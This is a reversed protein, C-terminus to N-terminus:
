ESMTNINRYVIGGNLITWQPVLLDTGYFSENQKNRFYIENDHSVKFIAVDAIAGVSLSGKDSCNLLAAPTYTCAKILKLLPMGLNLYKSLIFPLGFIKDDFLTGQTLDSSIIDPWFNDKLANKLVKCSFNSRADASDFLVGRKRAAHAAMKVRGCENLITSNDGQYCHCFVDNRDLYGLIDEVPVPPNKGHVVIKTNLKRAVEITKRLPYLGRERIVHKDYRVKLGAIEPFTYFLRKIINENYYDPNVDEYINYGPQGIPSINLYSFIKVHSNKCINRHFSAYNSIGCSGQDVACTVGMPLLIHDPSFGYESGGENIHVHFDILGPTIICGAANIKRTFMSGKVAQAIRGHDIAIDKRGIFNGAPDIVTGETILIDMKM